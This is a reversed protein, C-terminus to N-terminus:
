KEASVGRSLYSFLFGAHLEATRAPRKMRDDGSRVEPIVKYHRYQTEDGTKCLRGVTSSFYGMNQGNIRDTSTASAPLELNKAPPADNESVLARETFFLSKPMRAAVMKSRYTSM